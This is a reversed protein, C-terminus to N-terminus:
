GEEKAKWSLRTRKTEWLLPNDQIVLDDWEVVRCERRVIPSFQSPPLLLGGSEDRQPGQLGRATAMTFFRFAPKSQGLYDFTSQVSNHLIPLNHHM